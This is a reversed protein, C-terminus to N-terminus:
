AKTTLNYQCMKKDQEIKESIRCYSATIEQKIFYDIEKDVVDIVNHKKLLTAVELYVDIPLKKMLISQLDFKIKNM